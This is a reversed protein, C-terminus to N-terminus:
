FTIGSNSDVSIKKSQKDVIYVVTPFFSWIKLITLLILFVRNEKKDRVTKLNNANEVPRYHRVIM